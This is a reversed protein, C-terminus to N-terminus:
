ENMLENYKRQIEKESSEAKEKDALANDRAEKFAQNEREYFDRTSSRLKELEFQTKAKLNELERSLKNDYENKYIERLIHL